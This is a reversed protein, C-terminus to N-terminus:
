MRVYVCVCVCASVCEYMWVSLWPYVCSFEHRDHFHSLPSGPFSAVNVIEPCSAVENRIKRVRSDIFCIALVCMYTYTGAWVYDLPSEIIFIFFLLSCPAGIVYIFSFFSFPVKFVMRSFKFLALSVKSFMFSLFLSHPDWSNLLFSFTLSVRYRLHLFQSFIVRSATCSFLSLNSPVSWYQFSSLSCISNEQSLIFHSRSHPKWSHFHCSEFHWAQSCLDLLLALRPELFTPCIRICM